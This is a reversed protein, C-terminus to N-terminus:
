EEVIRVTSIDPASIVVEFGLNTVVYPCQLDNTISDIILKSVYQVNGKPVRMVGFIDPEITITLPL